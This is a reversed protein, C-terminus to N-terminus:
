GSNDSSFRPCRMLLMQVMGQGPELGEQGFGDQAIHLQWPSQLPSRPPGRGQEEKQTKPSSVQAQLQDKLETVNPHPDRQTRPGSMGWFSGLPPQDRGSSMRTGGPTNGSSAFANKGFFRRNPGPQPTTAQCFHPTM